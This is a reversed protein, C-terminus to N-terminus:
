QYIHLYVPSLQCTCMKVGKSNAMGPAINSVLLQALNFLTTSVGTSKMFHKRQEENGVSAVSVVAVTVICFNVRSLM